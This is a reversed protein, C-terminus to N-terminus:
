NARDRFLWAILKEDFGSFAEDAMSLYVRPITLKGKRLRLLDPLRWVSYKTQLPDVDGPVVFKAKFLFGIGVFTGNPKQNPIGRGMNTSHSVYLTPRASQEPIDQGPLLPDGLVLRLADAPFAASFRENLRAFLADERQKSHSADFYQSPLMVKAFYKDRQVIQDAREVSEPVVRQFRVEVDPGRDALDVALARFFRDLGETEAASTELFRDVLSRALERRTVTLEAQVLAVFDAHAEAFERLAQMTRESRAQDLAGLLASRLALDIAPRIPSDTNDRAFRELADLSETAVVRRLEANPLLLEGVDRRTGGRELYARYAEPTDLQRATLYLAAESRQNRLAGVGSGLAGGLLLAVPLTLKRWRPTPRAYRARPALPNSYRPEALPDLAAVAQADGRAQADTLQEKAAHIAQEVESPSSGSPVPMRAAYGDGFRLLLGRESSEVGALTSLPRVRFVPRTADVLGIPFLFLGRPFPVRRAELYAAVAQGSCFFFAALGAAAAGITLPPAIASPSDLQGYGWRVLVAFTVLGLVAAVGWGWPLPLRSPRALM